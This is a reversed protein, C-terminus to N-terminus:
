EEDKDEGAQAVKLLQKYKKANFDSDVYDMVYEVGSLLNSVQDVLGGYKARWKGDGVGQQVVAEGDPGKLKCIRGSTNFEVTTKPSIKKVLNIVKQQEPTNENLLKLVRNYFSM